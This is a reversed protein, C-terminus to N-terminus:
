SLRRGWAAISPEFAKVDWWEELNARIVLVFSSPVVEPDLDAPDIPITMEWSEPSMADATARVRMRLQPEAGGVLGLGSVSLQLHDPRPALERSIAAALEDPDMPLRM